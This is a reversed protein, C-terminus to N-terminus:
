HRHPAEVLKQGPLMCAVSPGHSEFRTAVFQMLVNSSLFARAFQKMWCERFLPDSGIRTLLLSPGLALNM